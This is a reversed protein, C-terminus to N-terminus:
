ARRRKRNLRDMSRALLSGPRFLGRGPPLIRFMSAPDEPDFVERDALDAELPTPEGPHFPILKRPGRGGGVAAIMGAMSGAQAILAGVEDEALGCHEALLGQRIATIQPTCHGNGPRASDIFIDCESDLRMSRNNFNSSGIRLVEDDVILLKAHVYIPTQGTWPVYLHFRHQRDIEEIARVLRSRVPDMVTSEVWGHAADPHVIVFEPPDPEALRTAIAEAIVRSAFYQNEAYVFHKARRIHEVFLEEVEAVEPEGNYAARTRSIGVEVNEFHPALGEPWLSGEAPKLTKLPRGGARRWRDRGLADLARAAPGELMMTIDHWPGYPHGGPRQRRPDHERHERSDWRGDAMDIGGCVALADDVLVIKQHHSCGIPHASDFKYDIRPHWLWSVLDLIMSGRRLFKLTGFSWNLIRIEVENCHHTLWVIFSGLRAPYETSRWARQWWRRGRTLHIRTDFDWSILLVRQRANLMAQQMLDFYDQADVIVHVRDAKAYRWVGPEVSRDDFPEEIAKV